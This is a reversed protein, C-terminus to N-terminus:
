SKPKTLHQTLHQTLHKTLPGQLLRHRGSQMLMMLRLLQLLQLLQTFQRSRMQWKALGLRQQALQMRQLAIAYRLQQPNLDLWRLRDSLERLRQKGRWLGYISAWILLVVLGNMGVVLRILEPTMLDPNSM